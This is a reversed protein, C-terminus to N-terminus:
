RAKRIKFTFRFNELGTINYGLFQEQVEGVFGRFRGTGGLVVRNIAEHSGEPGESMLSNVADFLYHQTTSVHPTAGNLVEELSFNWMGRCVWKGLTGPTNDLDFGDGDPITGGPFIRGNVIFTTGRGEVGTDPDLGIPAYTRGDCAVDIVITEGDRDHGHRYNSNDTKATLAPSVIAAALTAILLSSAAKM